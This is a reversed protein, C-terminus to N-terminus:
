GSGDLAAALRYFGRYPTWTSTQEYRDLDARYDPANTAAEFHARSRWRTVNIVKFRTDSDIARYLEASLFGESSRIFRSREEWRSVFTDIEDEPIDFVNIFTMPEVDPAPTAM